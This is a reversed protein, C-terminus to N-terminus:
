AYVRVIRRGHHVDFQIRATGEATTTRVEQEGSSLRDTIGYDYIYSCHAARTIGPRVEFSSSNHPDEGSSPTWYSIYILKPLATCIYNDM